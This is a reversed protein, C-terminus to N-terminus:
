VSNEAGHRVGNLPEIGREICARSCLLEQARIDLRLEDCRMVELKGGREEWPQM